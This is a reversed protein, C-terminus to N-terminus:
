KTKIMINLTLTGPSGVLSKLLSNIKIKLGIADASHSM